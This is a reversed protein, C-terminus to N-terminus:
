WANYGIEPKVYQIMITAKNGQMDAVVITTEGSALPPYLIFSVNRRPYFTYRWENGDQIFVISSIGTSREGPDFAKIYVGFGKQEVSVITPPNLDITLTYNNYGTYLILKGSM